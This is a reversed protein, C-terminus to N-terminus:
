RLARRGREALQEALKRMLEGGHEQLLQLLEHHQALRRGWRDYLEFSRCPTQPATGELFVERGEGCDWEAWSYAGSSASATEIGDPMPFPELGQTSLADRLFRGVIPLAARSGPLGLSRGDDYGVWVGVVLSQTYALFWADRWDNSTGTKGALGGWQGLESLARGTGRAIVGELASTVLYAEAPDVADTGRQRGLERATGDSQGIGLLTRTEARYGGAALTGYARTLELPTVESTGLALSPLARLPSSIGLNRAAEIIRAPGVALGIRAFPVNLSQELAERVTVPGRFERDYNAPEWIGAPTSVRLPADQIVSALTFEPPDGGARGLAALAVMPKFASGPQRHADTARNFQSANYDRGGVMALIDGSRPDLAVLAAEVGPLGLRALGERVARNAARQLTADLTTFIANGRPSVGTAERSLAAIAFARFWPARVAPRPHPRYRIREERADNEEDESIRDQVRMLHLVLNRRERATAPHRVPTYRNPASIMGALLAADGLTVEGIEKGLYYRTAAGVGHIADGGDQGLYIENLYAELITAKNYREELAGAIAAERLKRLPTRRATLFLNKALQQTITSGGQRIGGSKLNALAAGVIRRLDLGHHEYFHQDEVALVAQILHDPVQDLRIPVRYEALEGLLSGIPVPETEEDSGWATPRTYLATPLREMPSDLRGRIAAEYCIALIGVVITGLIFRHFRRSRLRALLWRSAPAVRQLSPIAM